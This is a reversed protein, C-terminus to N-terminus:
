LAVPRTLLGAALLIGGGAEAAAALWAMIEPAPLGMGEVRGVFGPSPPVKGMGHFYTLALGAYLRFVLLGLDTAKANLLGGFLLKKMSNGRSHLSPLKAVGHRMLRGASYVYRRRSRR